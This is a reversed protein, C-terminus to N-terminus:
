FSVCGVCLYVQSCHGVAFNPEESIEWVDPDTQFTVSLACPPCSQWLAPPTREEGPLTVLLPQSSAQRPTPLSCRPCCLSTQSATTDLQGQQRDTM